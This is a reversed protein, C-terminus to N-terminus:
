IKGIIANKTDDTKKQVNSALTQAQNMIQMLRQIEHNGLRDEAELDKLADDFAKRISELQAAMKDQKEAPEAKASAGDLKLDLMDYEFWDKSWAGDMAGYPDDQVPQAQEYAAGTLLSLTDADFDFM